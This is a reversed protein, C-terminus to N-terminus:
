PKQSKQPAKLSSYGKTYIALVGESAGTGFLVGAEAPRLLAIHDIQSPVVLALASQQGKVDRSGAMRIGDVFVM